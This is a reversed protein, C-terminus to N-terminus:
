NTTNGAFRVVADAGDAIDESGEIITKVVFYGRKDFSESIDMISGKYSIDGVTVTMEEDTKINAALRSDVTFEVYKIDANEIECYKTTNKIEQRKFLRLNKIKGDVPATVLCNGAAVEYQMRFRDCDEMVQELQRNVANIGDVAENYTAIDIEKKDFLAKKSKLDEAKEGAVANLESISAVADDWAQRSAKIEERNDVMLIKDGKKVEQGDKVYIEFLIGSVRSLLDYTDSSQVTGTFSMESKDPLSVDLAIDTEMSQAGPFITGPNIMDRNTYLFTGVGITAALILIRSIIKGKRRM